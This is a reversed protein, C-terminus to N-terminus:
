RSIQRYQFISSYICLSLLCQRDRKVKPAKNLIYIYLFFSIFSAKDKIEEDKTNIKNGLPM